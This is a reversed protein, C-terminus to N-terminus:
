QIEIESKLYENIDLQPADGWKATVAIKVGPVKTNKSVAKM